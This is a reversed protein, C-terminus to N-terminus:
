FTRHQNTKYALEKISEFIILILNGHADPVVKGTKNGAYSYGNFNVTLELLFVDM